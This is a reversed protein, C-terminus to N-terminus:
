KLGQCIQHAKKIIAKSEEWLCLEFLEDYRYFKVLRGEPNLVLTKLYEMIFFRTNLTVKQHYRFWHHQFYGCETIIKAEIGAEEKVERLAAAEATEGAEIHGAPFIWRRKDSNSTVLLYEPQDNAWRYVIGGARQEVVAETM